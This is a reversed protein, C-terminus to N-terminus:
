QKVIMRVEVMRDNKLRIFYVGAPLSRIDIMTKKEKISCNILEQGHHNMISICGQYLTGPIEITICTSSPNPYISFVNGQNQDEVSVGCAAEVEEPSNCGAANNDIWATGSGALYNCISQVACDTLTDNDNIWILSGFTTVNDLGSLSALSHNYRLWINGVSTLNELEALNTLSDNSQIILGGGISTLNELGALNKLVDAYISLSGGISTLVSLGNLNTIDFSSITVDGGIKTCGPYNTSFSDIDAQWNFTIGQPLCSQSSATFSLILGFLLLFMKRMIAM